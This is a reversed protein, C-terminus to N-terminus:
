DRGKRGLRKRVVVRHGGSEIGLVVPDDGVVHWNTLVRGDRSIIVGSGVSDKGALVFVVASAAKQFVAIDREGRTSELILNKGLKQLTSAIRPVDAGIRIQSLALLLTKPLVPSKVETTPSPMSSPPVSVSPVSPPIPTKVASEKSGHPFIGIYIAFVAIIALATASQWAYVSNWVALFAHQLSSAYTKFAQLLNAWPSRTQKAALRRLSNELHLPLPDAKKELFLLERLEVVQNLCYLCLKLHKEVEDREESPLTYEIYQGLASVSLCHPTKLKELDELLEAGIKEPTVEM